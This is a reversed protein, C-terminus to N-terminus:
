PLLERFPDYGERMESRKPIVPGLQRPAVPHAFTLALADTHDPSYGIRAKILDKEEIWMRDGKFTYTIAPLEVLLERCTEPIAGGAKIWNALEFHIETRKNYYRREDAAKTAFGVGIPTRNLVQLQEIWAAGFGGTDDVFCADLGWDDWFRSVIGAGQIGSVNRMVHPPFAVLGQRPFAVSKDLGGRAVDVGLVRPSKEIDRDLYIHRMAKEVDEVGILANISSPPFEGLINVKVWPNDRGYQQIQTRAHEIDIRPSREPDEPDGTITVVEWLLRASHCARYLPGSLLTPNGAQVIHAEKPAGAFINECVPLVAEPYGGSEDLLWLVYEGHLGRLANGIQDAEADQAWTRAELKWTKPHERHYIEKGSQEFQQQLMPDRGRWRALETWLNAKLNPGNISTCGGVAHPRTVLFNLGIWALVATKGPGACAKMALRPSHPFLRLAKEQWKDPVVGFRERVFIDPRELYLRLKDVSLQDVM